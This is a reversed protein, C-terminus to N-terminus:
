LGKGLEKLRERLIRFNEHSEEDFDKAALLGNKIESLMRSALFARPLKKDELYVSNPM